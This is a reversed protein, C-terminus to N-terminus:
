EAKKAENSRGSQGAATRKFNQAQVAAAAERRRNM